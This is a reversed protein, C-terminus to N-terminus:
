CGGAPEFGAGEALVRAFVPRRPGNKNEAWTKVWMSLARGKVAALWLQGCRPKHALRQPM